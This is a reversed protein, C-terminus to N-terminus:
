KCYRGYIMQAVDEPQPKADVLYAAGDAIFYVFSRYGGYKGFADKANVSGCIVEAAKGNVDPAVKRVMDGYRASEPVKLKANVAAMAKALVPDPSSDGSVAPQQAWATLPWVALAVVLQILERSVRDGRRRPRAADAAGRHRTGERDKVDIALELNAPRLVPRDVPNTGQLIKGAYVSYDRQRM